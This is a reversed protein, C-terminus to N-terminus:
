AGGQSRAVRVKNIVEDALEEGASNGFVVEPLAGDGHETGGGEGREIKALGEIRELRERAQGHADDMKEEVAQCDEDVAEFRRKTEFVQTEIKEQTGVFQTHVMEHNQRMM